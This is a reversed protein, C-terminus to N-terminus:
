AVMDPADGQEGVVKIVLERPLCVITEGAKSVARHEVCIQDPCSAEKMRAKGGEIVLLNTVADEETIPIERDESLSYRAIERGDKIIVAYAGEKRTAFFLLAFVAVAFLIGLLLLIDNRRRKSPATNKIEQRSM